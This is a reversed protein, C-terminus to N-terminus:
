GVLLFLSLPFMIAAPTHASSLQGLCRNGQVAFDVNLVEEFKLHVSGESGRLITSFESGFFAMSLM